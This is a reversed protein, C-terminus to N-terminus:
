FASDPAALDSSRGPEEAERPRGSVMAVVAGIILAAALLTRPTLQEGRFLVGLAVAVIPNVYAYTAVTTVPVHNLLWTYATFALLSGFVVLYGLAVWSQVSVSALDVRWVEGAVLAALILTGGGAVQEMGTALLGNRPLPGHRAYISGAAWGINALVLLGIGWPELAGGGGGPVLLVAVGALGVVVGGMALLSPRRRTIIADFFALWIPETAIMVAAIGSPIVKEAVMVMGNGGLLLLAGVILATRWEVLRPRALPTSGRRRRWRDQAILFGLLIGGSLLFRAGAALFPPLTEVVYAIALFTSGWVVYVILLALAVSLTSPSARRPIM